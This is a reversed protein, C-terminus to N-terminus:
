SERPVSLAENRDWRKSLTVSVWTAIGYGLGVALFLIGPWALGDERMVGWLAMFAAGLFSLIIARRIGSLVRERAVTMTGTQVGNVFDRGAESNLFTILEPTSGFREILKSQVEAQYQQRRARWWFFSVAVTIFALNGFIIGIIPIWLGEM